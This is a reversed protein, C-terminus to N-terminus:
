GPSPPLAIGWVLTGPLPEVRHLSWGHTSLTNVTERNLHCGCALHGWIPQIWTQIHRGLTGRPLAIHELFHLRGEPKLVRQIELLTQSLHSVSCLTLISVVHDFTHEQFPLSEAHGRVIRVRPDQHREARALMGASPDLGVIEQVGPPYFPVSTGSGFGIELVNGFTEQLVRKRYRRLPYTVGDHLVPFLTESYFSM